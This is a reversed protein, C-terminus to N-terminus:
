KDYKQGAIEDWPNGSIEFANSHLGPPLNSLERDFFFLSGLICTKEHAVTNPSVRLDGQNSGLNNVAVGMFKSAERRLM